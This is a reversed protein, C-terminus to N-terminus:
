TTNVTIGATGITVSAVPATVKMSTMLGWVNIGALSNVWAYYSQFTALQTPNDTYYITVELQQLFDRQNEKRIVIARQKFSEGRVKPRLLALASHYVILAMDQPSAVAPLLKLGDASITYGPVHGCRVVTRVVSTLAGDEFMYPQRFDGMIARVPECFDTLTAFSTPASFAQVEFYFWGSAPFHQQKGAGDLYTFQARYHGAVQTEPPLLTYQVQGGPEDVITATRTQVASTALGIVFGLGDSVGEPVLEFNFQVTLGTLDVGLLGTLRASSGANIQIKGM